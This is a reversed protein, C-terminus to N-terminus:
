GHRERLHAQAVAETRADREGIGNRAAIREHRQEALGGAPGDDGHRRAVLLAKSLQARTGVKRDLSDAGHATGATAASRDEIDVPDERERELTQARGVFAGEGRQEAGERGGPRIGGLRRNSGSWNSAAA